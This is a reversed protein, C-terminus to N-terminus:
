RPIRTLLNKEAIRCYAKKGEIGIFKRKLELAKIGTTAVGCFPDLVIGGKKCGALIPYTILKTNYKAYHKEKGSQTPINWFDSVDGPNKGKPHCMNEIKMNEYSSRKERHGNWARNMRELSCLKHKERVKDLAFFYKKSKVLLFIYEHKKSFRDRVSEPMGNYKAWIIDNRVLWGREMCGIAFRHPLLLLSKQPVNGKLLVSGSEKHFRKSIYEYKIGRSAGSQTGYSDGLNFWVTGSKKLVRKIEDMLTWLKELYEGYTKELGWQGRWKYDRMQWYPPSTIVCDISEDPFKKLITLTDGQFIKCPKKRLAHKLM